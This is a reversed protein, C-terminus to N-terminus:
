QDPKLYYMKYLIVIGFIFMIASIICPFLLLANETLATGIKGKDTSWETLQSGYIAASISVGIYALLSSILLAIGILTKKMIVDKTITDKKLTEPIEILEEKCDNCIKYGEQYESKCKPCVLM